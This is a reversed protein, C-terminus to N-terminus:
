VLYRLPPTRGGKDLAFNQGAQQENYSDKLQALNTANAVAVDGGRFRESKSEAVTLDYISKAAEKARPDQDLERMTRALGEVEDVTEGKTRLAVLFAATEVESSRGEMVEHLVAAAHDASMHRGSALAEVARTMVPNPM